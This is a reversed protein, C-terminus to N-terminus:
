FEENQAGKRWLRSKDMRDDVRKDRRKLINQIRKDEASKSDREWQADSLQKFLSNTETPGTSVNNTTDVNNPTPIDREIDQSVNSPPENMSNQLQNVNIPTSKEQAKRRKILNKEYETRFIGDDVEDDFKVYNLVTPMSKDGSNYAEAKWGKDRPQQNFHRGTPEWSEVRDLRFLKWKPVGRFTDGQYQYARFAENGAKTIGYTYPEILRKEVARSQEDRYNIIVQYRNNIADNVETSSVSENLVNQLIDYLNLKM